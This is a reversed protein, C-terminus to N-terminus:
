LGDQAPLYRRVWIWAGCIELSIGNLGVVANIATNLADGYDANQGPKVNVLEGESGSGAKCSLGPRM